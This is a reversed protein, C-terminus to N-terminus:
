SYIIILADLQYNIYIWNLINVKFAFVRVFKQIIDLIICHDSGEM